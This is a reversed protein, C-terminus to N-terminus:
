AKLEDFKEAVDEIMKTQRDISDTLKVIAAELSRPVYWTKVGQSDEKDHWIHLDRIQQQMKVTGNRGNKSVFPIFIQVTQLVAIVAFGGIGLQVLQESVM